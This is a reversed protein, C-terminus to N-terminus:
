NCPLKTNWVLNQQLEGCASCSINRDLETKRRFSSILRDVVEKASRHIGQVSEIQKKIKELFYEWVCRTAELCLDLQGASREFNPHLDFNVNKYSMSIVFNLFYQIFELVNDYLTKVAQLNGSKKKSSLSSLLIDERGILRFKVRDIMMIRGAHRRVECLRKIFNPLLRFRRIHCRMRQLIFMLFYRVDLLLGIQCQLICREAITYQSPDPLAV